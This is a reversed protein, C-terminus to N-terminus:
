FVRNSRGEFELNSMAMRMRKRRVSNGCTHLVSKAFFSSSIPRLTDGGSPNKKPEVLVPSQEFSLRILIQRIQNAGWLFLAGRRTPSSLVVNM